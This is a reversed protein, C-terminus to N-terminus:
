CAFDFRLISLINCRNELSFRILYYTSFLYCYRNLAYCMFMFVLVPIAVYEKLAVVVCVIEVPYGPMAMISSTYLLVM